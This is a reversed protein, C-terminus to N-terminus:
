GRGASRAGLRRLRPVVSKRLAGLWSLADEFRGYRQKWHLLNEWVGVRVAVYAEAYKAYLDINNRMIKAYADIKQQADMKFTLSDGRMRYRFLVQPLRVVDPRQRLIKLWFDHDEFGHLMTEDMGGVTVWDERRFLSTIFIQNGFLMRGISFDGLNWEGTVDGFREALCYVIGVSPKADLVDAALEVYTPMIQDDHDLFLLYSGTAALAGANRAAAAGRNAQRIVRTPGARWRDLAALSAPETSGDDVLIVELDAHTQGLASTVAEELMAPDPNWCAIVVTVRTPSM